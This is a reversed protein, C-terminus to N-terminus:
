RWIRLYYKAGHYDPALFSAIATQLLQCGIGSHGKWLRARRRTACCHKTLSCFSRCRATLSCPLCTRRSCNPFCLPMPRLMSCPGLWNSWSEQRSCCRRSSLPLPQVALRPQELAAQVLEKEKFSTLVIVQV